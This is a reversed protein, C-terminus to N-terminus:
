LFQLQRHQQLEDFSNISHFFLAHNQFRAVQMHLDAFCQKLSRQNQELHQMLKPLSSRKM